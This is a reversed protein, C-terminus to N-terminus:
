EENTKQEFENEKRKERSMIGKIMNEYIEISLKDNEGTKLTFSIEFPDQEENTKETFHFSYVNIDSGKSEEKITHDILFYDELIRKLRGTEKTQVNKYYTHFDDFKLFEYNNELEKDLHFIREDLEKSNIFNILNLLNSMENKLVKFNRKLLDLENTKGMAKKYNSVRKTNKEM